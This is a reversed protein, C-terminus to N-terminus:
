SDQPLPIIEIKADRIMQRAREARGKNAYGPPTNRERRQLVWVRRNVKAAAEDLVCEFMDVPNDPAVLAPVDTQPYCLRFVDDIRVIDLYM